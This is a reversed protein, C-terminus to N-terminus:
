KRLKKYEENSVPELWIIPGKSVNPSIGIHTFRSYRTAGHWHEVDPSIEVVDGKKLIRVEKGREQYYGTGDTVLLIQGGPHKHWHNRAGPEFIVNYVQCDYVNKDDSVLMEIWATGTFNTSAKPGRKFIGIDRPKKIESM